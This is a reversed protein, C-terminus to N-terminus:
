QSTREDPPEAIPQNIGKPPAMAARVAAARPSEPHRRAHQYCSRCVGRMFLAERCGAVACAAVDRRLRAARRKRRGAAGPALLARGVRRARADGDDGQSHRKWHLYCAWCVGRISALRECGETRCPGRSRDSRAVAASAAPSGAGRNWAALVDRAAPPLLEGVPGVVYIPDPLRCTNCKPCIWTRPDPAPEYPPHTYGCLECDYGLLSAAQDPRPSSTTFIRAADSPRNAPHKHATATM